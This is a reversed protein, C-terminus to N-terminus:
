HKCIVLKLISPLYAIIDDNYNDSNNGIICPLHNKKIKPKFYKIVDQM